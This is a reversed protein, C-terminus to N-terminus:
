YVIVICLLLMFAFFVPKFDVATFDNQKQAVDLAINHNNWALTM